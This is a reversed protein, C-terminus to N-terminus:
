KSSFLESSSVKPFFSVSSSGRALFSFNKIGDDDDIGDGVGRFDRAFFSFNKIGDDDDIGDGVGRFDIMGSGGLYASTLSGVGKLSSDLPFPIVISSGSFSVMGKMFSPPGTGLIGFVFDKVVKTHGGDWSSNLALIFSIFLNALLVHPLSLCSSPPTYVDTDKRALM